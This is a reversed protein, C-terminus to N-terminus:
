ECAQEGDSTPAQIGVALCTTPVQPVLSHSLSHHIVPPGLSYLTAGTSTQESLLQSDLVPNLIRQAWSLHCAPCSALSESVFSPLGSGM